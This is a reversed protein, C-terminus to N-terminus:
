TGIPGYSTWEEESGLWKSLPPGLRFTREVQAGQGDFFRLETKGEDAGEPLAIVWGASDCTTRYTAKDAPSGTGIVAEVTVVVSVAHEPLQNALGAVIWYMPPMQPSTRWVQAMADLRDTRLPTSDDEVIWLEGARNARVTILRDRIWPAVVLPPGFDDLQPHM